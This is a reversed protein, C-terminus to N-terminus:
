AAKDMYDELIEHILTQYGKKSKGALERIKELLGPDLRIAIMLKPSEGFPPRGVRRMSKLQEDSLGPIDSYDIQNDSIPKANKKIRKERALSVSKRSKM